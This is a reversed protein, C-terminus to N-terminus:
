GIQRWDGAPSAIRDHERLGQANNYRVRDTVSAPDIVSVPYPSEQHLKGKEELALYRKIGSIKEYAAAESVWLPMNEPRTTSAKATNAKHTQSLSRLVSQVRAMNESSVLGEGRLEYRNRSQNDGVREITVGSLGATSLADNLPKKVKDMMADTTGHAVELSLTNPVYTGDANVVFNVDTIAAQGQSIAGHMKLLDHIRWDALMGNVSYAPSHGDGTANGTYSYSPEDAEHWVSPPATIDNKSSVIPVHVGHERYYDAMPKENLGFVIVSMNSILDRISTTEDSFHVTEKGGADRADLTHVLLRMGDRFDNGGKSFGRYRQRRIIDIADPRLRIAEDFFIPKGSADKHSKIKEIDGDVVISKLLTEVMDVAIPAVNQFTDDKPNNKKADVEDLRHFLQGLNLFRNKRTNTAFVTITDNPGLNKADWTSLHGTNVSQEVAEVPLRSGDFLKSFEDQLLGLDLAENDLFAHNASHVIHPGQKKRALAVLDDQTIAEWEGDGLRARYQVANPNQQNYYPSIVPHEGKALDQGFAECLDGIFGHYTFANHAERAKAILKPLEPSEKCWTIFAARWPDQCIDHAFGLANRIDKAVPSGEEFGQLHQDVVEPFGKALNAGLIGLNDNALTVGLIDINKSKKLARYAEPDNVVFNILKRWNDFSLSEVISPTESDAM